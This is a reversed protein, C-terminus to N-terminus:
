AQTARYHEYAQNGALQADLDEEMREAALLLRETRGRPLPRPAQWRRQELQRRAERVWGERGQGRAVIQETNLEAAPEPEPDSPQDHDSDTGALRERVQRFFERRGERTRLAEPLEDGRADGYLEDEAEDVAMAEALIERAIQGFDRNSGRSANGALRTGDIAVVGPWVLGAEDCLGLVQGFLEALAAEHCEVFRAITAHDPVELMAIVRCAVDERCAREIARASRVGRAYCYLLLAVM